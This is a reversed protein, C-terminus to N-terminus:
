FITGVAYGLSALVFLIILSVILYVIWVVVAKLWSTDYIYKTVAVVLIVGILSGLSGALGFISILIAGILAIMFAKGLTAGSISTLSAAIHLVIATIILVVIFGIAQAIWGAM